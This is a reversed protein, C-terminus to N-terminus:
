AVSASPRAARGAGALSLVLLTPVAMQTVSLSNDVFSLFAFALALAVLDPRVTRPARRICLALTAIIAALVLGGGVFGGEVLLRLYENHQALFGQQEVRIVPGAGLGRGFALNEEAAAYFQAWAASRGSTPDSVEGVGNVWGVEANRAGFLPSAALVVAVLAIGAVLVRLPQLRPGVSTALFRVALPSAAIVLAILSGRSVTACLILANAAALCPLARGAHTRALLLAAACGGLAAGGLYPAIMAGYLRPTPNSVVLEHQGAGQLL